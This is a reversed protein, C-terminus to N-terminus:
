ADVESCILNKPIKQGTQRARCFAAGFGLFMKKKEGFNGATEERRWWRFNTVV